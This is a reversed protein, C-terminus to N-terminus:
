SLLLLDLRNDVLHPHIILLLMAEFHNVSDFMQLHLLESTIIVKIQYQVHNDSIKKLQYPYSSDLSKVASPSFKDRFPRRTYRILLKAYPARTWTHCAGDLDPINQAATSHM